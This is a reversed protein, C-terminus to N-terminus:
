YDISVGGLPVPFEYAFRGFLDDRRLREAVIGFFGKCESRDSLRLKLLFETIVEIITNSTVKRLIFPDDWTGKCLELAKDDVTDDEDM